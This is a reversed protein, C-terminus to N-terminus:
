KKKSKLVIQLNKVQQSIEEYQLSSNEYPDTQVSKSPVTELQNNLISSSSMQEQESIVSESENNNVLLVKDDEVVFDNRYRNLIQRFKETSLPKRQLIEKM